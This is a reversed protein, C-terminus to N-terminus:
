RQDWHPRRRLHAPCQQRRRAPRHAAWQCAQPLRHHPPFHHYPTSPIVTEPYRSPRSSPAVTLHSRQRKHAHAAHSIKQGYTFYMMYVFDKIKAVTNTKKSLRAMINRTPDNTGSLATSISRPLHGNM